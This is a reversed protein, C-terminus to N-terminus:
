KNMFSMLPPTTTGDENLLELGFSLSVLFFLEDDYTSSCAASRILTRTSLKQDFKLHFDSGFNVPTIQKSKVFDHIADPLDSFNM